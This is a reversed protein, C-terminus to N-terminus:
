EAGEAPDDPRGFIRSLRWLGLGGLGLVLVALLAGGVMDWRRSAPLGFVAVGFGALLAVGLLGFGLRVARGDRGPVGQRGTSGRGLRGLERGLRWGALGGLLALGLTIADMRLVLAPNLQRISGLLGALAAVSIAACGPAAVSRLDPTPNGSPGGPGPSESGGRRHARRNQSRDSM